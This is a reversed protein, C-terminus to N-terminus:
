LSARRWLDQTLNWIDNSHIVHVEIRNGGELSVGVFDNTTCVDSLTILGAGKILKYPKEPDSFRSVEQAEDANGIQNLRRRMFELTLAYEKDRKAIDNIAEQLSVFSKKSLRCKIESFLVTDEASNFINKKYAVIDIGQTPNNPYNGYLKYRPVSYGLVFEIFDAFIIEGFNGSLDKKATPLVFNAIYEQESIKNANAGDIIEESSIYHALIHKAWENLEAETLGDAISYVVISEGSDLAVTNSNPIFKKIYKPKSFKM